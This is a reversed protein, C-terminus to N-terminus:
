ALTAGGDAVTQGNFYWLSGDCYLEVYDGIVSITTFNIVGANTDSPGDDGTDVELENIGGAFVTGGAHTAISHVSAGPVAGVIFKLTAGEADAAEPITVATATTSGFVYVKGMDALNLATAATVSVVRKGGPVAVGASNVVSLLANKGLILAKTVTFESIRKFLRM